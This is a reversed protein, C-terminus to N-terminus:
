TDFYMRPERMITVDDPLIDEKRSDIAEHYHGVLVPQRSRDIHVLNEGIWATSRKSPASTQFNKRIVFHDDSERANTLRPKLFLQFPHHIPRNLNGNGVM